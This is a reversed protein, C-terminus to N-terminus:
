SGNSIQFKQIKKIFFLLFGANKALGIAPIEFRTCLYDTKPYKLRFNYM